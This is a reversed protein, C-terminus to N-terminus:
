PARYPKRRLPYQELVVVAFAPSSPGTMPPTATLYSTGFSQSTSSPMSDYYPATYSPESPMSAAIEDCLVRMGPLGNKKQRKHEPFELVPGPSTSESKPSRFMQEYSKLQFELARNRDLLIENEAKTAKLQQQATQNQQQLSSVLQQLQMSEYLVRLSAGSASVM